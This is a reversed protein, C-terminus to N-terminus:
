ACCKDAAVSSLRVDKACLVHDVSAGFVLSREDALDAAHGLGILLMQPVPVMLKLTNAARICAAEVFKPM